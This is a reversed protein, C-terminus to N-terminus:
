EIGFPPIPPFGKKNSQLFFRFNDQWVFRTMKRLKSVCNNAVLGRVNTRPSPFNNIRKGESIKIFQM